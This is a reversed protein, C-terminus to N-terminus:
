PEVSGLAEARPTRALVLYAAVAALVVGLASVLYSPTFMLLGGIFILGREARGLTRRLFGEAGIALFVTGLCVTVIQIITNAELGPELISPAYVFAFPLVFAALSLKCASLAIGIPNADSIAAAAYAAVAVPPTMASLVAFYMLFLHANLLPIHFDNVLTPGILVAALVYASPTPMGLGLLITVAASLLLAIAMNDGALAFTIFSFKMALGTMTIGGIVLGAAACAGTVGLMRITTAALGEYIGVPGLRHGARFWSAVVVSVTAFVAVRTPSYGQVLAIVLVVLPVIYVWGERLTTSLPPVEERSLGTLALRESRLHVQMMICAYYLIAPIISAVVITIYSIGTYEAMIFAASGMVPPLISGGTSAAVEVASALRPSYNLRKMMPITISGTTVVDSTPSGSMTGFLASSIVAIKAPGGHSRGAIAAAVRFFFEGGGAKELFTGFMVFLFVYTAAVRVPVGFLGDGTFVNVDLFHNLSIYGHGLPGSILHGFLNYATFAVVILMLFVGVTRRTIELALLVIALAAVTQVTTLPLFLSIRTAIVETQSVFYGATVLSVAVLAWDYWPVSTESAHTGARVMVFSPPLILCLFVATAALADVRGFSSEWLVWVGVAAAYAKVIMALPGALDRRGGVNFLSNIFGMM